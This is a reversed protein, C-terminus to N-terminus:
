TSDATGDRGTRRFVRVEDRRLSRAEVQVFGLDGFVAEWNRYFLPVGDDVYNVGSREPEADPAPAEIEVTVLLDDVVRALEAFAREDEPPVHQLTEVAFAADIARDEFDPLASQVSEFRVDAAADLEPYTEAMVDRAAENIEVGVLDEFGHDHLHALHRGASCGVELVTADRDLRHEFVRRVAESREDAGRYAYYEPSFEGSRDAWQRRVDDANM